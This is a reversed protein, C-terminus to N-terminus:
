RLCMKHSVDPAHHKGPRNSLPVRPPTVSVASTSSFLPRIYAGAEIRLRRRREGGVTDEVVRAGGDLLPKCVDM